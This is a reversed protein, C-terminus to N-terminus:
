RLVAPTAVAGSPVGRRRRSGSASWRCRGACWTSAFSITTVYPSIPAGPALAASGASRPSGRVGRSCPARVPYATIRAAAAAPTVLLSLVLLAGVIQVALAAALGVLVTFVPSLARVPVGARRPWRRTASAFAAAALDGRAGALVVVAAGGLLALMQPSDVAVIQGTLLGFKNAARGKYLSLFLVGLGLGFPM